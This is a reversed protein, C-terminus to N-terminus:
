DLENFCPIEKLFRYNKNELDVKCAYHNLGNTVILYNVQLKINYQAIQDFVKQTIPVEPAKCEVILIPNGNRSYVVIDSRRSLKHVKLGMEVAILTPPFQKESILYKIFNQRVWEEPTLKLYKKRVEDFIYLGKEERRFKFKYVPLNLETM